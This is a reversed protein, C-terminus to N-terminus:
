RSKRRRTAAAKKARKPPTRIVANHLKLLKQLAGKLRRQQAAARPGRIEITVRVKKGARLDGTFPM